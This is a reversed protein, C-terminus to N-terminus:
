HIEGVGGTRALTGTGALIAQVRLPHKTYGSDNLAKKQAETLTAAKTAAQMSPLRGELQMKACNEASALLAKAAAIRDKETQGTRIIARLCDVAELAGELLKAAYPGDIQYMERLSLAASAKADATAIVEPHLPEAM